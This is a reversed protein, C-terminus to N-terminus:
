KIFLVADGGDDLLAGFEDWYMYFRGSIGWADSWSNTFRVWKHTTNVGDLCIEHGGADGGTPHVIGNSDPWFMDHKWPIGVILPGRMLTALIHDLGFAHEYRSIKGESYLVKAMSLGDSGTDQDPWAGPFPDRLTVKRYYGWETDTGLVDEETYLHTGAVHLSSHNLCGVGANPVCSGINGQDLVDGYRRWYKTKVPLDAQAAFNRSRPDHNAAADPHRGLPFPTDM